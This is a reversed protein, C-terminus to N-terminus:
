ILSLKFVINEHYIIYGKELVKCLKTLDFIISRMSFKIELDNMFSKLAPTGFFFFFVILLKVNYHPLYCFYLTKYLGLIITFTNVLYITHVTLFSCLNPPPASFQKSSIMELQTKFFSHSYLQYVLLSVCEHFFVLSM